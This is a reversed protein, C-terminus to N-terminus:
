ALPPVYPTRATDTAYLVKVYLSLAENLLSRLVRLCNTLLEMRGGRLCVGFAVDGLGVCKSPHLLAATVKKRPANPRTGYLGPRAACLETVSMPTLGRPQEKM